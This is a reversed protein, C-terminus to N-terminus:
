SQWAYFPWSGVSRANPSVEVFGDSEALSAVDGSGQTAVLALQGQATQKVLRFWILDLSKSDGGDLPLVPPAEAQSVGAMHKLLELGYRRFTVAVSVPNGPLGLVLQGQPGVAGLMPRGPRIPIRHFVVRCGAHRIADPVYDTDGMSVGGTLLIADCQELCQVVAELTADPHDKVKLRHCLVWRHGALMAELFPGNSDRIQWPKLPQGIEILEDGTNIIGIRVKRYVQFDAAESFTIAGAFKCPSLVSGSPVLTDGARANEGRRRINMGPSLSEKSLDISVYSESESCDERRVVCQSQAPVPGGTFVRVASRDALDIPSSGATATGCIPFVNGDLDDIRIAYGDMASVDIAPSDRFAVVDQALVRGQSQTASLNETAVVKIQSKLDAM